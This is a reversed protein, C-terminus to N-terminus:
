EKGSIADLWPFYFIVTTLFIPDSNKAQFKAKAEDTFKVGFILKDMYCLTYPSLAM